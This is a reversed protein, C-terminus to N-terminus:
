EADNRALAFCVLIEQGKKLLAHCLNSMSSEQLAAIFGLNSRERECHRQTALYGPNYDPFYIWPFHNMERIVIRAVAIQSAM